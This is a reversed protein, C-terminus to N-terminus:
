RQLQIAAKSGSRLEVGHSSGASQDFYTNLCINFWDPFTNSFITEDALKQHEIM